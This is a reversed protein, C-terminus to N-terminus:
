DVFLGGGRPSSPKQPHPGRGVGAIVDGKGAETSCIRKSQSTAGNHCVFVSRACHSVGGKLGSRPTNRAHAPGATAFFCLMIGTFLVGRDMRVDADAFLLHSLEDYIFLLRRGYALGSNMGSPPVSVGMHM